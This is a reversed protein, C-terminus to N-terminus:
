AQKELYQEEAMLNSPISEFEIKCIWNVRADENIKEPSDELENNVEVITGSVPAYIESVAKVSEVECLFKEAVVKKGVEPLEVYVIDGLEHQAHDSIGVTAINGDSTEAWEHTEAYYLSM